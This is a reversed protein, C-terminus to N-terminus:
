LVRYAALNAFDLLNVKARYWLTKTSCKQLYHELSIWSMPDTTKQLTVPYDASKRGNFRLHIDTFRTVSFVNQVISKLKLLDEQLFNRLDSISRTVTRSEDLLGLGLSHLQGLVVIDPCALRQRSPEVDLAVVTCGSLDTASM